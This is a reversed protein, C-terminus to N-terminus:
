GELAAKLKTVEAEFAACAKLLHLIAVSLQIRNDEITESAARSITLVSTAHTLGVVDELAHRANILALILHPQPAKYNDTSRIAALVSEVVAQDAPGVDTGQNLMRFNMDAQELGVRLLGGISTVADLDSQTRRRAEAEEGLSHQVGVLLVGALIAYISGVAQVWAAWEQGSLNSKRGYAYLEVLVAVSAAGALMWWLSKKPLKM